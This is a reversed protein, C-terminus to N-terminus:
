LEEVEDWYIKDPDLSPPQATRPICKPEIAKDPHQVTDRLHTEPEKENEELVVLESWKKHSSPMKDLSSAVRSSVKEKEIKMHKM